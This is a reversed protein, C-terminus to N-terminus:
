QWKELSFIPYSKEPLPLLAIM